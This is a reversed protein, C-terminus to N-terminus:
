PAAPAEEFIELEVDRPSVGELAATLEARTLSEVRGGKLTLVHKGCLHIEITRLLGPAELVLREEAPEYSLRLFVPEDRDTWLFGEEAPEAGHGAIKLPRQGEAALESAVSGGFGEREDGAEPSGPAYRGMLGAWLRGLCPVLLPRRRIGFAEAIEPYVALITRIDNRLEPSLGPLVSDYRSLLPGLLERVFDSPVIGLIMQEKLSRFLSGPFADFLGDGASSRDM